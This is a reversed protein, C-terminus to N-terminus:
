AGPPRPERGREGEHKKMEAVNADFQTQQDATLLGRITAVQDDRRASMKTRQEQMLRQATATDGKQRAERIADFDGRGDQGGAQMKAREATHYEDLKAKQADTLTIGHLLMQDMM